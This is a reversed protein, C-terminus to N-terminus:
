SAGGSQTGGGKAGGRQAGFTQAGSTKAAALAARLEEAEAPDMQEVLKVLTATRNAGSEFVQDILSAAYDERSHVANYRFARGDRARTLWGKRHLIEMVTQVSNYAIPRQENIADRVERVLAPGDASWVFDMIESELEGFGRVTEGLAM